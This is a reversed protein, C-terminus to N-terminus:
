APSAPADCMGSAPSRLGSRSDGTTEGSTERVYVDQRLVRTTVPDLGLLPVIERIKGPRGDQHQLGVEITGDAVRRIFRIMPRIDLTLRGSKGEREMPLTTASLLRDIAADLRADEEPALVGPRLLFDVAEVLGMMGPAHLPVEMVLFGEPVATALRQNLEGPDRRSTLWVDMYEGTSEEGVPLATSFNVKPLPHFGETYALPFRARRMARQWAKAMELHSLM